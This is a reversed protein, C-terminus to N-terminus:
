VGRETDSDPGLGGPKEHVQEIVSSGSDRDSTQSPWTQKLTTHLAVKMRSPLTSPGYTRKTASTKRQHGERINFCIVDTSGTTFDVLDRHIRTAAISMTIWSPVQFMENFPGNLNLVIFVVPPVEAAIAILLWIVGQKWLLKTVGFTGGGSTRVRLLGVLMIFLLAIDTILM